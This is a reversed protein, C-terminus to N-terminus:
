SLMTSAQQVFNAREFVLRLGAQGVVGPRALMEPGKM